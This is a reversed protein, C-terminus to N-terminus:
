VVLTVLTVLHSTQVTGSRALVTKKVQIIILHTWNIGSLLLAEDPPEGQPHTASSVPVAQFQSDGCAYQQIVPDLQAPDSRGCEAHM